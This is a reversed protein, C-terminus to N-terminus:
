AMAEANEPRVNITCGILPERAFDWVIERRGAWRHHRRASGAAIDGIEAAAIGRAAFRGLVAGFM